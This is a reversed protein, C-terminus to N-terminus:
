KKIVHKGTVVSWLVALGCLVLLIPVLPYPVNVLEWVGGVLFLSGCVIWFAESKLNVCRRVIVEAVIILGVGVM